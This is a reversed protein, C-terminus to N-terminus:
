LHCWYISLLSDNSPDASIAGAARASSGPEAGLVGTDRWKDTLLQKYSQERHIRHEGRAKASVLWTRLASVHMCAFCDFVNFIKLTTLHPPITLHNM